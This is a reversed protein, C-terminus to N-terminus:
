RGTSEPFCTFDRRLPYSHDRLLFKGDSNMRALVEYFFPELTRINVIPQFVIDIRQGSIAEMIDAVRPGQRLLEAMSEDNRDYAEVRNGHIKAAYCASDAFALLRECEITGDIMAIGM